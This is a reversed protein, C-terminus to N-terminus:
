AGSYRSVKVTANLYQNVAVAVMENLVAETPEPTLTLVVGNETETLKAGSPGAVPRDTNAAGGDNAAQTSAPREDDNGGCGALCGLLLAAILLVSFLKKM